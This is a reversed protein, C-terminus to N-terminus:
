KLSLSTCKQQPLVFENLICVNPFKQLYPELLSDAEQFNAEGTGLFCLLDVEIYKFFILKM